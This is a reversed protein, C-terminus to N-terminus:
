FNKSAQGKRAVYSVTHVVKGRGDRLTATDKDNNWIYWSSNFYQTSQSATGRGTRVVVKARAALTFTGFRFTHGVKDKLTWGTLTQPRATTNTLTVYEANLSANGGRDSGPSDFYITSVKVTPAAAQASAAPVIAGGAALATALVASVFVNIRM